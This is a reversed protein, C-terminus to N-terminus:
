PLEEGCVPQKFGIPIPVGTEPIDQLLDLSSFSVAPEKKSFHRYVYLGILVPLILLTWFWAPNAFEM